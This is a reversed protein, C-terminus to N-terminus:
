QGLVRIYLSSRIKPPLDNAVAENIRETRKEPTATPDITGKAVGRWLLSKSKADVFDLLLTGETYQQVSVNRGGWHRGYRGTTYGWDTIELKEQTAGHMAILCDPNQPNKQLGKAELGRTVADQVRKVVIDNVTVNKPFPIWAFTRLSSFDAQPDYDHTVSITSCGAAFIILCLYLLGGNTPKMKLPTQMRINRGM